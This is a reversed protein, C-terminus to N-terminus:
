ESNIDFEKYFAASGSPQNWMDLLQSIVHVVSYPFTLFYKTFSSLVSFTVM